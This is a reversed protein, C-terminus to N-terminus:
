LDRRQADNPLCLGMGLFRGAGLILPGEVPIAFRVVAHTLTRSALAPTLQWRTWSPANGSPRASVAGVIASHKDPVVVVPEPLGINRCARGILASIEAIQDAGRSKTHRDLVLPTITAFDQAPGRYRRPQLSRRDPELTPALRLRFSCDTPAM